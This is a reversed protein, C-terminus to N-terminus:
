FELLQEPTCIVPPVFGMLRCAREIKPRMSANAIHKCNWTLLYNMGGQAAVAIHLADLMAKEPLLNETILQRAFHEASDKVKLPAIGSMAHLRRQAAEPHGREIEQIVIASVFLEFHDRKDWWEQTLQQHAAKVLDRSPRATLYSPISSEIYVTPKM